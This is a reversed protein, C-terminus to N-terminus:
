RAAAELTGWRALPIMELINARVQIAKLQLEKVLEQSYKMDEREKSCKCQEAVPSEAMWRCLLGTSSRRRKAQSTCFLTQLMMLHPLVDWHFRM